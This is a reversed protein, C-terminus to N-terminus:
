SSRRFRMGLLSSINTLDELSDYQGASLANVAATLDGTGFLEIASNMENPTLAAPPPSKIRGELTTRHLAKHYAWASPDGPNDGHIEKYLRYTEGSLAVLEKHSLHVPEAEM